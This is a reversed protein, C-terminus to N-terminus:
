RSTTGTELFYTKPSICALSFPISERDSGSFLIRKDVMYISVNNM